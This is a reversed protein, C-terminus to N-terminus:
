LCPRRSTRRSLLQFNSSPLTPHAIGRTCVAVILLVGDLGSAVCVGVLRYFCCTVAYLTQGIHGGTGPVIAEKNGPGKLM